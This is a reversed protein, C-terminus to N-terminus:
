VRTLRFLPQGYEVPKGNEVLCDFVIGSADAEIENMLKMAEVICLTQGVQVRSGVEVFSAAEPSASRYFTGVFPSTVIIFEDIAPPAISAGAPASGISAPGASALPAALPASAYLIPAGGSHGRGLRLRIKEDEFEFETIEGEALTKILARLKKLDM